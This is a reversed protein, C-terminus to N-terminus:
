EALLSRVAERYGRWPVHPFVSRWRSSDLSTDRPRPEPAPVDARHNARVRQPHVGLALALERGMEWRSLREQGGLHFVGAAESLALEVLGHAATELDIPTRWEDDFLTIPQGSRLARVQSDFFSERALRSPGFLLSVRAIANEPNELVSEEAKSKSRGYVSLPSPPDSERYPAREGDFVLDTSVFVLRAGADTCLGALLATARTNIRFAREPDAHCDALRALAAAHLVVEPSAARFAAVVMAENCLDVPLLGPGTTAGSWVCPSFGRRSLHRVLYGGLVGSGGTVLIRRM